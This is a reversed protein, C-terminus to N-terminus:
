RTGIPRQLGAGAPPAGAQLAQFERRADLYEEQWDTLDPPEMARTRTQEQLKDRFQEARWRAFSEILDDYTSQRPARRAKAGTLLQGLHDAARVRAGMDPISGDSKRCFRLLMTKILSTHDFVTHSVQRRAVYPSVVVAPVRPGYRRFGPDDDAAAPPVVHDFFGGHEDYTIVLLTSAWAPGRLIAHMLRLVLDQGARLDSPPHDDNSGAPGVSIDVFNPDIWSVAPLDGTAARKLFSRQGLLPAERDFYAPVRPHSLAYGSDLAWLTPFDDHSYWRWTVGANDLQRV